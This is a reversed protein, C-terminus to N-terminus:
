FLLRAPLILPIRVENSSRRVRFFNLGWDQTKSEDLKPYRLTQWPIAFEAVWSSDTRQTRVKYLGDWDVDYQRDDFSLLDRQVGYANSQLVLANREDKFGDIAIGFLDNDAFNYDRKLNPSRFNRKGITDYNIALVYLFQKNGLLRVETRFSAQNGQFPEVQYNLYIPKALKWEDESLQGDIVLESQIPTM